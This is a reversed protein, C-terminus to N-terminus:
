IARDKDIKSEVRNKRSENFKLNQNIMITPRSESKYNEFFSKGDEDLDIGPSILKTANEENNQVNKVDENNKLGRIFRKIKEFYRKILSGKNEEIEIDENNKNQIDILGTDTNVPYKKGLITVEEDENKEIDIQKKNLIKRIEQSDDLRRILTEYFEIPMGYFNFANKFNEEYEQKETIKENLEKQTIAIAEEKIKLNLVKECELKHLAENLDRIEGNLKKMIQDENNSVMSVKTLKESIQEKILEILKSKREKIKIRLSDIQKKMDAIQENINKIKGREICMELIRNRKTELEEKKNTLEFLEDKRRVENVKMDIKSNSGSYKLNVGVIVKDIEDIERNIEDIDKYNEETIDMSKVTDVKLESIRNELDTIQKELEDKFEVYSLFRSEYKEIFEEFNM